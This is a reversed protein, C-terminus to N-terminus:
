LGTSLPPLPLKLGAMFVVADDVLRNVDRVGTQGKALVWKALLVRAAAVNGDESLPSGAAAIKAWAQDFVATLLETRNDEFEYQRLLSEMPM